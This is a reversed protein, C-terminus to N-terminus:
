RSPAKRRRRASWWGGAIAVIVIALPLPDLADGFRAYLTPRGSGLAVRHTLAGPEMRLRGTRSGRLWADVRGDPRVFASPGTNGARVLGVRNEVARMMNVFMQNNSAAWGLWGESTLNVFFRAGRRGARRGLSPYCSEYCVPTWFRVPQAEPDSPPLELLTIDDPSWGDPARGWAARVVDDLLRGFAPWARALGAFARRETFPFLVVKDYRGLVTGDPGVLLTMNTTRRGDPAIGMTGFLLPAGRSSAIWRVTDQYVRNQEFFDLIANEPWVILDASGPQVAELTIQQQVRVVKETLEPSHDESPQIVAIRPGEDWTVTTLRLAGYGVLGAVVLAAAVVARRAETAGAEGLKVRVLDVGAAFPVAWLVSLGPVGVLDAAQALLPWPALFSGIAYMNFNGLGILPRLWEAAGLGLPIALWAPLATTRRLGAVLLAAAVYHWTLMPPLLLAVHWGWKALPAHAVILAALIGPYFGLLPARWRRLFAPTVLLVYAAGLLPGLPAFRVALWWLFGGAASVLLVEALRRGHPLAADPPAHTVPGVRAARSVRQHGRLRLQEVARHPGPDREPGRARAASGRM